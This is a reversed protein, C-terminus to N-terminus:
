RCTGADAMEGVKRPAYLPVFVAKWYEAADQSTRGEWRWFRKNDMDPNYLKPTPAADALSDVATMDVSPTDVDVCKQNPNLLDSSSLFLDWVHELGTREHTTDEATLGAELKTCKSRRSCDPGDDTHERKRLQRKHPTTTCSSLPPQIGTVAHANMNNDVHAPSLTTSSPPGAQPPAPPHAGTGRDHGAADGGQGAADEGQGAADESRGAGGGQGADRRAYLTDNGTRYLDKLTALQNHVKWPLGRPSVIQCSAIMARYLMAMPDGTWQADKGEGVKRLSLPGLFDADIFLTYQGGKAMDLAQDRVKCYEAYMDSTPPVRTGQAQANKEAEIFFELYKPVILLEPKWQRDYAKHCNPCLLVGNMFDSHGNLHTMSLNKYDNLNKDVQAFVHAVQVNFAECNMCQYNSDTMIRTRASQSFSTGTNVTRSRKSASTSAADTASRKPPGLKPAGSSNDDM